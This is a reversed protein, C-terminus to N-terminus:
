KERRRKGKGNVRERERGRERKRELGRRGRHGRGLLGPGLVDEARGGREGGVNPGCRYFFIKSHKDRKLFVAGVRDALQRFGEGSPGPLRFCFVRVTEKKKVCSSKVEESVPRRGRGPRRTPTERACSRWRRPTGPAPSQGRSSSSAPRAAVAPTATATATATAPPTKKPRLLM